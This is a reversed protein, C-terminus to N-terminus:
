KQVLKNDNDYDKKNEYIGTIIQYNCCSESPLWCNTNNDAAWKKHGMDSHSVVYVAICSYLWVAM